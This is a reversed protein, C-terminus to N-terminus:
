LIINNKCFIDEIIKIEELLNELEEADKQMSDNLKVLRSAFGGICVVKNLIKDRIEDMIDEERTIISGLLEGVQCAFEIEEENFQRGHNEVKDIVIIGSIKRSNEIEAILPIYLIETIGKNQIIEKFYSCKPDTAPNTIIFYKEQRQVADEIDPHLELTDQLGIKHEPIPVGATIKCFKKRLEKNLFIRFIICSQIQLIEALKEVIRQQVSKGSGQHEILIKVISLLGKAKSGKEIVAM